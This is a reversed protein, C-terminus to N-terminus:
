WKVSFGIVTTNQGQLNWIAGTYVEGVALTVLEDTQPEVYITGRDTTNFCDLAHISNDAFFLTVYGCDFGARRANAQFDASFNACNYESVAYTHNDTKDSFVFQMAQDYTPNRVLNFTVFTSAVFLMLSIAALVAWYKKIFIMKTKVIKKFRLGPKLIKRVTLTRRHAEWFPEYNQLEKQQNLTGRRLLFNMVILIAFTFCYFRIMWTTAVFFLVFVGYFPTLTLVWVLELPGSVQSLIFGFPAIFILVAFFWFPHNRLLHRLAQFITFYVVGMSLLLPILALWWDM